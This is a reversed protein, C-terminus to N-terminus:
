FITLLTLIGFGGIVMGSAKNSLSLVKHSFKHSLHDIGTCLILYWISSGLFAGLVFLSISSMIEIKLAGFVAMFSLITAPNIITLIFTSFYDKLYSKTSTPKKTPSIKTTFTKIGLYLLFLGSILFFLTKYDGLFDIILAAGLGALMAYLGDATAAGLGSLFGSMKGSKITRSVCLMAIPGIAAAISFGIILGKILVSEM